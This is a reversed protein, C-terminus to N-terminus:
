RCLFTWDQAARAFNMEEGSAGELRRASDSTGLLSHNKLEILIFRMKEKGQMM